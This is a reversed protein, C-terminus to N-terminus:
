DEQKPVYQEHSSDTINTIPSSSNALSYIRSSPYSGGYVQCLRAQITIVLQCKKKKKKGKNEKRKTVGIMLQM